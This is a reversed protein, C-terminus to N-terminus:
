INKKKTSTITIKVKKREGNPIKNINLNINIANPIPMKLERYIELSTFQMRYRTQLAFIVTNIFKNTDTKCLFSIEKNQENYVGDNLRILEQIEDESKNSVNIYKPYNKPFQPIDIPYSYRKRLAILDAISRPRNRIIRRTIDCEISIIKIGLFYFHFQQNGLIEEFYKAGCKQAWEDLWTDWYNLWNNTNKVRFDIYKYSENEKFEELQEQIDIPITHVYLDLDNMARHGLLYLIVSSFLMFQHQYLPPINIMIWKRYKLFMKKSEDLEKILFFDFNQIETFKISNNCFFLSAAHWIEEKTNPHIITFDSEIIDNTPYKKLLDRKCIFLITIDFETGHEKNGLDYLFPYTEKLFNYFEGKTKIIMRPFLLQYMIKFIINNKTFKLNKIGYLIYDKEYYNTYYKYSNNKNKGFIIFCNLNTYQYLSYLVISDTETDFIHILKKNRTIDNLKNRIAGNKYDLRKLVTEVPYSLDEINNFIM